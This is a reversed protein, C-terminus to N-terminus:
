LIKDGSQKEIAKILGIGLSKNAHLPIIVTQSRRTLKVHSGRCSKVKWGNNKLISVVEKGSKPM